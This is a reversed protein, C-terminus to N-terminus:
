SNSPLTAEPDTTHGVGDLFTQLDCSEIGLRACATRLSVKIPERDITDDTVVCPEYGAERLDLAQALVMPDGPEREADPDIVDGAEAMVRIWSEDTPEYAANVYQGANLAWAEPADIFRNQHLERTVARPFFVSGEQVLIKLQELLEWQQAAPVTRKINIIASADLV